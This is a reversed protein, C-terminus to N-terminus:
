KLLTMFKHKSAKKDFTYTTEAFHHHATNAILCDSFDCNGKEYDYISSWILDTKEIVFSETMLIQKLVQCIQSRNYGYARNLVWVMECLVMISLYTEEAHEILQSACQSQKEDDQVLYRVLVNTDIAIM